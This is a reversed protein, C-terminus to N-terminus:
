KSSSTSRCCRGLACIWRKLTVWWWSPGTITYVRHHWCYAWLSPRRHRLLTDAVRRLVLQVQADTSLRLTMWYVSRSPGHLVAPAHEAHAYERRVSELGAQAAQAVVAAAGRAAVALRSGPVSVIHVVLAPVDEPARNPSPIALQVLRRLMSLPVTVHRHLAKDLDDQDVQPLPGAGQPSAHHPIDALFSLTNVMGILRVHQGPRPYPDGPSQLPFRLCLTAHVSQVWQSETKETATAANWVLARVYGQSAPPVARELEVRADDTAVSTIVILERAALHLVLARGIPTDGGLVIVAESRAGDANIAGRLPAAPTRWYTYVRPALVLGLGVATATAAVAAMMTTRSTVIWGHSPPPPPAPAPAHIWPLKDWAHRLADLAGAPWPPGYEQLADGLQHAGHQVYEFASSTSDRLWNAAMHVQTEDM